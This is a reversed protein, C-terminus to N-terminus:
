FRITCGILAKDTLSPEVSCYLLLLSLPVVATDCANEAFARKSLVATERRLVVLSHQFYPHCIQYSKNVHHLVKLRM